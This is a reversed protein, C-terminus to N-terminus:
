ETNNNACEEDMFFLRSEEYLPCSMEDRKNDLMCIHSKRNCCLCRLNTGKYKKLMYQGNQQLSAYIVGQKLLTRDQSERYVPLLRVSM